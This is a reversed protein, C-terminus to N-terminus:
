AAAWDALEGRVAATAVFGLTREARVDLVPEVITSQVTVYAYYGPKRRGRSPALYRSARRRARTPNIPRAVAPISVCIAM